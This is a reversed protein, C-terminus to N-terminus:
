MTAHSETVGELVPDGSAHSTIWVEPDSNYKTVGSDQTCAALAAVAVMVVSRM